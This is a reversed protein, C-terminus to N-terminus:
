TNQKGNNFEFSPIKNTQKCLSLNNAFYTFSINKNNKELINKKDKYVHSNWKIM